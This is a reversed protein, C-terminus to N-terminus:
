FAHVQPQPSLCVANFNQITSEATVTFRTPGHMTSCMNEMRIAAFIRWFLTPLDSMTMADVVYKQM